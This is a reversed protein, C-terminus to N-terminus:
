ILGWDQVLYKTEDFRKAKTDEEVGLFLELSGKCVPLELDDTITKVCAVWLSGTQLFIISIFKMVVTEKWEGERKM